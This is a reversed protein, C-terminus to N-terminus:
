EKEYKERQKKLEALIDKDRAAESRALKKLRWVLQIKLSRLEPDFGFIQAFKETTRLINQQGEKNMSILDKQELSRIFDYGDAGLIKLIETTTVPQRYAIETLFATERKSIFEEDPIFKEVKDFFEDPLDRNLQFSWFDKTPNILQISSNQAELARMVKRLGWRIRIRDAGKFREELLEVLQPEKLPKGVEFLIAEIYGPLDKFQEKFSQDQVKDLQDITQDSLLETQNVQELNKEQEIEAMIPVDTASEEKILIEKKEELENEDEPSIEEKEVVDISEPEAKITLQHDSPEDGGEEVEELSDEEELDELMKEIEEDDEEDPEMELDEDDPANEKAMQHM